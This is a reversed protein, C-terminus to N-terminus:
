SRQEGPASPEEGAQLPNAPHSHTYTAGNADTHEHFGGGAPESAMSITEGTAPDVLRVEAGASCGCTLCM